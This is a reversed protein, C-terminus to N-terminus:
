RKKQHCFPSQSHSFEGLFGIGLMQADVQKVPQQLTRRSTRLGHQSHDTDNRSHQDAPRDAPPSCDRGHMSTSVIKQGPHCLRRSKLRLVTCALWSRVLQPFSRFRNRTLERIRTAWRDACWNPFSHLHTSIFSIGWIGSCSVNLSSNPKSSPEAVPLRAIAHRKISPTSSITQLM